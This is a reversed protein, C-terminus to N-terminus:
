RRACARCWRTSAARTSGRPTRASCSWTSRATAPRSASCAGCRACRYTSDLAKRLGVNVSRFGKGVPTTIPGKLAIRNKRISDLTETPLTGKGAAVADIGALHREWTVALGTAEVVKVAAETVEPGIGDGPLLTITYQSMALSPPRVM